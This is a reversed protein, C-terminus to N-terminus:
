SAKKEFVTPPAPAFFADEDAGSAAALPTPAARGDFTAPSAPVETPKPKPEGGSVGALKALGELQTLPMGNLVEDSFDCRNTSRLQQVIAAKRENYIRLGETITAKIEAPAAAVYAELTMPAPATEKPPEAVPQPPTEPTSLKVESDQGSAVITPTGKNAVTETASEATNTRPQETKKVESMSVEQTQTEPDESSGEEETTLEGPPDQATSPVLKTSSAAGLPPASVGSGSGGPSQVLVIRTMLRVEQPESTFTVNGDADMDFGVQMFKEDELSIYVAMDATFGIVYVWPGYAENCARALAQRVDKDLLSGDITAAFFNTVGEFLQATTPPTESMNSVGPHEDCQCTGPEGGCPCGGNLKVVKEKAGVKVGEKAAKLKPVETDKQWQPTDKRANLRPAGCGGEVSCAGIKGQPLIALHDPVFNRYVGAYRKGGYTGGVNEVDAFFGTSVEVVEGNNIRAVTREFDGGLTEIRDLDIWAETKLKGDEVHTNFILGLQYDELINPSNAEAPHGDISPHDMVLPRGNWGSPIKGFEVSLALEPTEANSPHIVGEVLAVVPVVLHERAMFTEKRVKSAEVSARFRRLEQVM